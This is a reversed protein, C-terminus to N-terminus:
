SEAGDGQSDGADGSAEGQKQGADVGDTGDADGGPESPGAPKSSPVELSQTTGPAASQANAPAAAQTNAPAKRGQGRSSTPPKPTQTSLQSSGASATGIMGLREYSALATKDVDAPVDDGRRYRVGNRMFPKLVKM